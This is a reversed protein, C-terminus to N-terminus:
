QAAVCTYRMEWDHLVPATQGDASPILDVTIRLYNRGNVHNTNLVAGVDFFAPTAPSVVTATSTGITLSSATTLAAATAATKATFAISSGNGTTLYYSFLQWNPQYGTACTATYDRDFTAETYSPPAACAFNICDTANCCDAPTACTGGTNSCTGSLAACTKAPTGSAPTWTTPARCAATAPTAGSGCCEEDSSCSAGSNKCPSPVLYGRENIYHAGATISAMNQGPLLFAPHSRDTAGATVDNLAAIWLMSASCTFHTPTGTTGRYNFQNGYSRNSSFIVWRYGGVSIPLVTPQYAHDADTPDEANNLNALEAINATNQTDVAWLSGKWRGRATPSMSGYGGDFCARSTDTPTLSFSHTTDTSSCFDTAETQVFILSRSDGEFFPWKIPVGTSGSSWNNLLRTKNSFVTGGTGATYASQDFSMMTLTRRWGGDALGYTTDADANVYAIKSGNPSITPTLMAPLSTETFAIAANVSIGGSAPSSISFVRGANYSGSTVKVEQQGHLENNADADSRRTLKWAATPATSSGKVTVTYIGNHSQTSEDKVLIAAGVPMTVGDITLPGNASATLTAPASTNQTHAPLAATTAYDVTFGNSGYQGPMLRETFTLASSAAGSSYTITGSSPSSIYFVKGVNANGDTVRVDMGGAMVNSTGSGSNADYRRSLKWPNVQSLVYV